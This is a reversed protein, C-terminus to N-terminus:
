SYVGYCALEETSNQNNSTAFPMPYYIKPAYDRVITVESELTYSM